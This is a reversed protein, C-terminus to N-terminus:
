AALSQLSQNFSLIDQVLDNCEEATVRRIENVSHLFDPRMVSEDIVEPQYNEFADEGMDVHHIKRVAQLVTSGTWKFRHTVNCVDILRHVYGVDGYKELEEYTPDCDMFVMNQDKIQLSWFANPRLAVKGMYNRSVSILDGLIYNRLSAEPTRVYDTTFTKQTLTNALERGTNKHLQLSSKGTRGLDMCAGALRFLQEPTPLKQPQPVM